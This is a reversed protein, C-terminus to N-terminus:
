KLPKSGKKVPASSKPGLSITITVASGSPMLNIICTENERDFNLLSNGYEIINLMHWNYMPMQEKYFSIVQDSTAKGRYRLVGTRIGSNEFCYSDKAMLKFGVPVPCDSFKLLPQPELPASESVRKDKNEIMACGTVLGLVLLCCLLARM